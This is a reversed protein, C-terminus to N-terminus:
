LPEEEHLEKTVPNSKLEGHGSSAAEPLRWERLGQILILVGMVAFCVPLLYLVPWVQLSTVGYELRIGSAYQARDFTYYALGFAVAAAALSTIITILRKERRSFLSYFVEATIHERRHQAAVFGLTALIPLYYYQTLEFTHPVTTNLVSRAFVNSLVHIMMAVLAAVAAADVVGILASQLKTRAPSGMETPSTHSM